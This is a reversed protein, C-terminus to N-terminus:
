DREQGADGQTWSALTDVRAPQVPEHARGDDDGPNLTLRCIALMVGGMSAAALSRWMTRKGRISAERKRRASALVRAGRERTWVLSQTRADAIAEELIM